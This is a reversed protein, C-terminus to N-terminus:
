RYESGAPYDPPYERPLLPDDPPSPQRYAPQPYAGPAPQRANREVVPAKAVPKKAPPQQYFPACGAIGLTLALIGLSQKLIVNM